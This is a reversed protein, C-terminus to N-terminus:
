WLGISTIKVGYFEAIGVFRSTTLNVKVKHPSMLEM